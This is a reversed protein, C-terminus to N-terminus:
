PAQILRVPVPSTNGLGGVPTSSAGPNCGSANLIVAQLNGGGLNSQIGLQLFGVITANAIQTCNGGPCLDHGDFLAVTVVSESRSIYQASALAPNPNNTGPSILIPSGSITFCDQEYPGGSCDPPPASATGSAHILCQTAQDTRPKLSGTNIRSDIWVSDSPGNVSQGCSFTTPNFCAIGDYYIGHPNGCGAQAAGACSPTPPNQPIDLPYFDMIPSPGPSPPPCSNPPTNSPSPSCETLQGGSSLNLTISKDIFSGSNEIHGDAPDVFYGFQQTPNSPDHCNTNTPATNGVTPDCNALLWPKVGAVQIPLPGGSPNYAEASATARVSTGKVGWIRAFYTPLNTKTLVVSVVPNTPTFQPFAVAVDSFQVATGRITFQQAAATAANTAITRATTSTVRLSTYGSSVVSKAGALAAADAAQQAQRRDIYLNAVDVALAAMALLVLMSVAVILITQGREGHGLNQLRYEVM